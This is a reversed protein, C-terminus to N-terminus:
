EFRWEYPSGDKIRFGALFDRIRIISRMLTRLSAPSTAAWAGWLLLLVQEPNWV